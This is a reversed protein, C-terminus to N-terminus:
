SSVEKPRPARPARRHCQVTAASRGSTAMGVGNAPEVYRIISPVESPVTSDFVNRTLPDRVSEAFARVGHSIVFLVLVTSPRGSVRPLLLGGELREPGVQGPKAM